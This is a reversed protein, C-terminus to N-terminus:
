VHPHNEIWHNAIDIGRCCWVEADRSYLFNIYMASLTFQRNM